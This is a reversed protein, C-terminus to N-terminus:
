DLISGYLLKLVQLFEKSDIGSNERTIKQNNRPSCSVFHVGSVSTPRENLSIPKKELESRLYKLKLDILYARVSYLEDKTLVVYPSSDEAKEELIKICSDLDLLDPNGKRKNEM